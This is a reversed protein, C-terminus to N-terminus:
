SSGEILGGLGGLVAGAVPFGGAAGKALGTATGAVMSGLPNKNDTSSVGGHVSAMANFASQMTNLDKFTDKVSLDTTQRFADFDALYLTKNLSELLTYDQQRLAKDAQISQLIPLTLNSRLQLEAATKQINVQNFNQSLLEKLQADRGVYEGMRANLYNFKTAMEQSVGQMLMQLMQLIQSAQANMEQQYANSYTGMMLSEKQLTYQHMVEFIKMQITARYEAVKDEITQTHYLDAFMMSSENLGQSSALSSQLKAINRDAQTQLKTEFSTVADDIIDLELYEIIANNTTTMETLTQDLVKDFVKDTGLLRSLVDTNITGTAVLDRYTNYVSTLNNTIVNKMNAMAKTMLSKEVYSTRMVEVDLKNSPISSMKTATYNLMNTYATRLDSDTDNFLDTTVNEIGSGTMVSSVFDTTFKTKFNEAISTPVTGLSKLMSTFGSSVGDADEATHGALLKITDPIALKANSYVNTAMLSNVTNWLDNDGELLATALDPSDIGEGTMAYSYINAVKDNLKASDAAFADRMLDAIAGLGQFLKGAVSNDVSTTGDTHIYDTSVEEYQPKGLVFYVKYYKGTAKDFFLNVVENYYMGSEIHLYYGTPVVYDNTPVVSANTKDPSDWFYGTNSDFWKLEQLSYYMDYTVDYIYGRNEPVPHMGENTAM